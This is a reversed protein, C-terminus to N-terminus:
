RGRRREGLITGVVLLLFAPLAVVAFAEEYDIMALSEFESKELRGLEAVLEGMGLDSGAAAVYQGGAIKALERLGQPELRTIVTNGARDKLYGTVQGRDNLMPIPTGQETGVGLVFIKVGQEHLKRAAMAVRGEHDEGDTLLLVVKVKAGRDASDFMTAATELAEAIATGQSPMSEPDIARLFLKAAGYDTTLPCQVFAAGAFAVLGVRDGQLRDFLAALELKARDLRSPLIDRALMSRSADVAVVLDIGERKAFREQEGVQPRLLALALLCLGASTLSAKLILRTSSVGGGLKEQLRASAGLSHLARRRAWVGYAALGACLLAVGVLWLRDPRGLQFAYGLMELRIPDGSM